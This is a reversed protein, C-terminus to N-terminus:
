CLEVNKEIWDAIEPFSKNEADNLNILEKVLDTDVIEVPVDFIDTVSYYDGQQESYISVDRLEGNDKMELDPVGCLKGAVGLCCYECGNYLNDKGQKYEGSRLANIWKKGFEKPLTYKKM